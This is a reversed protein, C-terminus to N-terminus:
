TGTYFHGEPLDSVIPMALQGQLLGSKYVELAIIIIYLLNFFIHFFDFRGFSQDLYIKWHLPHERYSIM